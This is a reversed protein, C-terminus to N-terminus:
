NKEMSSVPYGSWHYIYGDIYNYAIIAGGGTGLPFPGALYTPVGTNINVTFLSNAELGSGTGGMTYLTSTAASYTLSSFNGGMDGIDTCVGTAPNITALRRSTASSTTRLIIYFLLNDSNWTISPAREITYGTLTIPNSSLVNWTLDQFVNIVPLARNTGVIDASTKVPQIFLSLTILLIAALLEESSFSKKKM